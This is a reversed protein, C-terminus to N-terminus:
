IVGLQNLFIALICVPCVFRVLFMYVGFFTARLTGWNTFEDRILRRPVCWGMFICTLFGGVPLMIQGTVFDFCDFLTRGWVSLWERGGLSLSCFVGIISCVTTVVLAAQHRTLRTEEHLFATSVEHLSILSTLAALSLLTYFMVAIATGVLPMGSFAQQFVNPLTIFILSPGSDPNVGVSFAAPFIMLGALIAIVTDILAINVASKLLNTERTFYSAFTCLCGMSLGLSYFSQGMAGLFVNSNLKSFDPKLLFEVGKASGPLMCSCVVVVLLLIFLLPMLAKSAKEIGGRVGRIIVFHTMLLIAVTWFLPRLPSASFTAFYSSVYSPDGRLEGMGSAFIYQLCWGSVVAYYGTILFGTLVGMFGVLRWAKHTDMRGYARATNASGHRGIMFESMTCPIGLLMICAVYILIFAAGGNEGAMYPFRWVNGLGVASGATALVLGLKSGFNAREQAMINNNKPAFKCFNQNGICIEPYTKIGVACLAQVINADSVSQSHNFFSFYITRDTKQATHTHLRLHNVIHQKRHKTQTHAFRPSSRAHLLPRKARCNRDNQYAFATRNSRLEQRKITCFRNNQVVNPVNKSLFAESFM